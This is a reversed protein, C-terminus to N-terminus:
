TGPKMRRWRIRWIIIVGIVGLCTLIGALYVGTWSWTEAHAELQDQRVDFNIWPGTRGTIFIFVRIAHLLATATGLRLPLKDASRDNKLWWNVSALLCSFDLIMEIILLASVWFVLIGLSGVSIMSITRYLLIGAGLILLTAYLRQRSFKM